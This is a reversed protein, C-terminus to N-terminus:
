APHAQVHRRIALNWLRVAEELVAFLLLYCLCKAIASACTQEQHQGSLGELKLNEKTIIRRQSHAECRSMYSTM